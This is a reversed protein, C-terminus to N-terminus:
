VPKNLLADVHTPPITGYPLTVTIIGVPIVTVM